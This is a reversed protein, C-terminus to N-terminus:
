KSLSKREKHQPLGYHSDGGGREDSKEEHLGINKATTTDNDNTRRRWRRRSINKRVLILLRCTGYIGGLGTPGRDGVGQGTCLLLVLVVHGGEEKTKEKSSAPYGLSNGFLVNEVM